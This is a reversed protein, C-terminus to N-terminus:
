SDIFESIGKNALADAIENGEIGSHGKVYVATVAHKKLESDLKEWLDKNAIPKINIGIWGKSKWSSLWGNIGQVVYNSDTYITVDCNLKLAELGKLAALIEMQNNTVSDGGYGCIEKRINKEPCLLLVGWGGHGPNGKSAGDCYMEIKM